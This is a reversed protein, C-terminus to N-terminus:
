ELFGKRSMYLEMSEAWTAKGTQLVQETLPRLAEWIESWQERAPRGLYQPHKAPGALAIYADNYFVVLDPGWWVLMPFRSALCISLATKLSQPWSEFPGVPSERWDVACLLRGVEGGAETLAFFENSTQLDEGSSEAGDPNFTPGQEGM